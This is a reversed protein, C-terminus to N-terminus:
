LSLRTEKTGVDYTVDYPPYKRPVGGIYQSPTIPYM